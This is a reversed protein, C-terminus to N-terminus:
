PPSFSVGAFVFGGIQECDCVSHGECVRARVMLPLSRLVDLGVSMRWGEYWCVASMNRPNELDLSHDLSHAAAIGEDFQSVGSKITNTGM